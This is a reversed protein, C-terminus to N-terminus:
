VRYGLERLYSEVKQEAEARVKKLGALEDITQQVDVYSEEVTIDVYRPINLNYDNQRIEDLPVPRSYKEITSYGRYADVIKKIDQPRLKNQNKGEQFDRAGYLFFVKGKRNAPKNKNLIFLCAPIGAGYFLNSPLGIVAELLDEELIGQRIRGEAGGRFLIGHPLVVGARGAPKLTAIM